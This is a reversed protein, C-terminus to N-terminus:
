LQQFAASRKLIFGMDASPEDPHRDILGMGQPAGEPAAVHGGQVSLRRFWCKGLRFVTVQEVGYLFERDSVPFHDMQIVVFFVADPLDGSKEM